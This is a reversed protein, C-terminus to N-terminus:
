VYILVLVELTDNVHVCHIEKFLERRGIVRLPALLAVLPQKADSNGDRVPVVVVQTALIVEIVLVCDVQKLHTVDERGSVHLPDLVQGLFLRQGLHLFESEFVPHLELHIRRKTITLGM